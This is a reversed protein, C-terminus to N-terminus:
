AVAAKREARVALAQDYAQLVADVMSRVGYQRARRRAARGLRDCAEPDALLDDLSKAAALPNQPPVFLAAGDWLERFTPIDSLVLACGTQAAELVGLGFPEYRALSVYVSADALVKALADSELWGLPRLATPAFTEGNPGITPGAAHVEHRMRSAAAALTALDKGRDWLRGATVAIPRRHAPPPRTLAPAARGNPAALPRVGYLRHTEEAFARTPAVLLDCARYGRALLRVRWDFDAPLPGAGVARWWSALCSHCGGVVPTALPGSALLAPSNLHVLDYQSAMQALREGASLVEAEGAALWDLPLDTLLLNARRRAQAQQMESPPPGLVALTVSIGMEAGALGEALDLAYTWVGGVADATLLVRLAPSSM